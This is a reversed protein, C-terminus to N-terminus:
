EKLISEKNKEWWARWKDRDNGFDEGTIKKLAEAGANVRDSRQYTGYFIRGNIDKIGATVSVGTSAAAMIFVDAIVSHEVGRDDRYISVLIEPFSEIIAPIAKKPPPNIEALALAACGRANSDEDKLAAILFEIDRCQAATNIREILEPGGACGMLLFLAFAFFATLVTCNKWM